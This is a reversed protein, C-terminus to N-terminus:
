HTESRSPKRAPPVFLGEPQREFRLQGLLENRRLERTGAAGTTSVIDLAFSTTVEKTSLAIHLLERRDPHKSPQVQWPDKGSLKEAGIVAWAEVVVAVIEVAPELVLAHVLAASSAKTEPSSPPPLELVFYHPDGRDALRFVWVTMPMGQRMKFVETVKTELFAAVDRLEQQGIFRDSSTTPWSSPFPIQM